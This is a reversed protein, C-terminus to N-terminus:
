DEKKNLNDVLSAAAKLSLSSKRKEAAHEIMATSKGSFLSIKHRDAEKAAATGLTGGFIDTYEQEPFNV